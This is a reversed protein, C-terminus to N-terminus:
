ADRAGRHDSGAASPSASFRLVSRRDRLTPALGQPPHGRNHAEGATVGAPRADLQAVRKPGFGPNRLGDLFRTDVHRVQPANKLGSTSRIRQLVFFPHEVIPELRAEDLM